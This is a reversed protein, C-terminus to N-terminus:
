FSRSTLNQVTGAASPPTIIWAVETQVFYCLSKKEVNVKPSTPLNQCLSAPSNSFPLSLRPQWRLINRPQLQRLIRQRHDPPRCHAALLKLEASLAQAGIATLSALYLVRDKGRPPVAPLGQYDKPLWQATNHPRPGKLVPQLGLLALGSHSVTGFLGRGSAGPSAGPLCGLFSGFLSKSLLLVKVPPCPPFPMECKSNNVMIWKGLYTYM